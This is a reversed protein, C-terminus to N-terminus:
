VLLLISLVLLTAAIPRTLIFLPNSGALIFTRRLNTEVIPGLVLGLVMPAVPFDHTEMLYGIVGFVFMLLVGYLDGMGRAGAACFGLIGAALVPYSVRFLRLFPKIMQLAVPLMLFSAVLLGAFVTYALKQQQVLFLPGPKLGHILFAGLMVATTASGPIGLALLPVLAGGVAANNATECAVLGEPNGTGFKEPEKSLKVAYSYSMIAATTAGVGPLIGIWSGILSSRLLPWSVGQLEKLSPLKVKLQTQDDLGATGVTSGMDKSAVQKFVEAVAFLGLLAPIFPIGSLLTNSGFTFRPVGTMSDIGITAFFLGLLVAIVAKVLSKGGLGSVATLGLIGLAFYEPPGFQLAVKALLPALLILVIAGFVSGLVSSSLGWGLAKGAQGKKTMEYGEITTVVAEEAGPIRFLIAPVQGAYVSSAYLAGLLLLAQSSSMGYTLPIFLAAGVTSGLGPLAGIAFGAVLGFLIILLNVPKIVELLGLLLFSFGM